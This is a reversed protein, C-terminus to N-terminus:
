VRAGDRRASLLARRHGGEREARPAAPPQQGRPDNALAFVAPINPHDLQATIRAEEVFRGLAADEKLLEPRLVKFAVERGLNEDRVRYVRSMGGAGLLGLDVIEWGAPIPQTLSQGDDPRKKGFGFM